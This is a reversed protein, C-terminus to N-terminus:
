AQKEAANDRRKALRDRAKSWQATFAQIDQEKTDWGASIRIACAALTKDVGMALLVHSPEIRGSSCASGASVAFGSLDLDMLQVENSMGPMAACTTNPLRPVSRGFVTAGSAEMMAEMANLWHRAKLIHTLDAAKEIAAAFGALAAVNETGARRGREQGGGAFLPAIGLERRLILAAAGVPGGCKHASLTLMDAGLAGVDVPIKGLGQVADCHLLAGHAHALEAADRVPQIVGTENNALMVSVLAPPGDERLLRALAALDLMGNADVPILAAAAAKLVSSHEVASVLLRRGPFGRLATANAETGSATFLVEDPWASIAAAVTARARELRKKAERGYAHVSSPNVPAALVALM